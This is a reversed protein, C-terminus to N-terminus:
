RRDGGMSNAILAFGVASVALMASPFLITWPAIQMTIRADAMMAGWEATPPRVGAGLFSVGAIAIIVIVFDSIAFALCVRRINPIVHRLIVRTRSYGLCQTALMFDSERLALARGRAVRAYRAWSTAFLSVMISKIGPGLIAVLAIVIILTPFIILSEIVSDWVRRVVASRTTGIISGVVAGILLPILVGIGALLIDIRGAAFTRTFVDRGLHDTGFLHSWNPSVLPENAGGWLPDHPSLLPVLVSLVLVFVVMLLGILGKLRLLSYFQRSRGGLLM